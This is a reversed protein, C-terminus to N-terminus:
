EALDAYDERIGGERFYHEQPFPKNEVRRSLKM